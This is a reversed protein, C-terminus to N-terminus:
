PVRMTATRTLTLGEPFFWGLIPSFLVSVSVTVPDGSECIGGPCTVSFSSVTLGMATAEGELESWIGSLDSPTFTAARAGERAINNMVIVAHFLRGLDFIGVLLLLLVPLLLAFELLGQGEYNEWRDQGRM